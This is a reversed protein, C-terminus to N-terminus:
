RDIESIDNGLSVAFTRSKKFGALSFPTFFMNYLM